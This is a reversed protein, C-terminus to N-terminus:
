EIIIKRTLFKESTQMALFYMGQKVNELNLAVSVNGARSYNNTFHQITRGNIDILKLTIESPKELSFEVRIYDKAPNPFYNFNLSGNKLTKIQTSAAELVVANVSLPELSLKLNYVPANVPITKLANNTHSVFTENAPLNSLSIMEIAQNKVKFDNITIEINQTETLHRNVLILTLSDRNDNISPYVSVFKENDSSGNVYNKQSYNSLLHLVEWMGNKWGWPSFFEVGQKAFEGLTSAYWLAVINANNSKIGTESVGFTVGHDAGIYKKLWDDCRALIYEKTLSNDWGNLRKVGNALPYNYTRDFFVRHLQVIDENKTDTPYFHIDLVDLLKIGTARQEEAIRLIFYELWTYKKGKYDVRDGDWNYWQWENAPVPGCIKIGPFKARAKKAVEFFRQMFDEASLQQPMVDDHTGYWIEPENDMSWFKVKASDIGKENFWHDLIKVTSDAPWDELYLDPNGDVLANDGGAPNVTGGGCLNQRVGSWWQSKNYNWSSFNYSGTKAAKYILQFGWMGQANPINKQLSQAMYSWDHAFVNNYWDPHSSLKRKWNYKTSNNGGNERFFTVGAEKLRNWEFASLPKAPNDSLSNNRGYIYPSVPHLVDGANVTIKVPTQGISFMSLLLAFFSIWYKKSLPM